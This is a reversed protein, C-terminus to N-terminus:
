KKTVFCALLGIIIVILIIIAAYLVYPREAPPPPAVAPQITVTANADDTHGYGDNVTLRVTVATTNDVDPAHFTPAATNASTLSAAGTPDNIITWSYTLTDGDPDSSGTGDLQVTSNEEVSYPGGAEATPPLNVGALYITVTANDDDTHGHGDDVTLRVTVATTSDVDPAHFTPTATSANTLSAAGIPDNIIAWSYTLTDGDPDSSGTGDLQVTSNEHVYYPGDADATPPSTVGVTKTETDIAGNDDTVRLTVHYDGKSFSHAQTQGVADCTGDNEWDWEYSVITGDPDSSASADFNVTQGAIPNSPAYTFNATPPQNGSPVGSIDIRESKGSAWNLVLGSNWNGVRIALTKDSPEPINNHEGPLADTDYFGSGDTIDYAVVSGADDRFTIMLNPAPSGNDYTVWGYVRHPLPPLQAEAAVVAALFTFFLFLSITRRYM